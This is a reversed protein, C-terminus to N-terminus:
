LVPVLADLVQVGEGQVVLLRFETGLFVLARSDMELLPM